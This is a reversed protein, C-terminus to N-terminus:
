FTKYFYTVNFLDSKVLGSMLMLSLQTWYKLSQQIELKYRCVVRKFINKYKSGKNSIKLLNM